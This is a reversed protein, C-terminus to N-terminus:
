RKYIQAAIFIVIAELVKKTELSDVVHLHVFRTLACIFIMVWVKKQRGFYVVTIPGFLDVGTTEFPLKSSDIREEPLPGMTPEKPKAKLVTCYNCHLKVLRLEQRIQPIWCKTRIEAVQSEFTIHNYKEHYFMLLTRTIANRRPLLPVFKQPNCDLFSRANIRILGQPDMFANLQLFEKNTVPKGDLMQKYEVPFSEIQAKRFMFHEAREYDSPNLHEFGEYINKLERWLSKNNFQKNKVLPIFVDMFLKLKRAVARRYKIFRAKTSASLNDIRDNFIKSDAVPLEHTSYILKTLYINNALVIEDVMLKQPLQPWSEFSSKLFEPGVFWVSNSDAFDIKKFKTCLDAPNSATPVYKWERRKTLDLIEEVPGVAYELLRAEPNLIWRLAVESDSWYFREFELDMFYKSIKDGMRAALLAAMLELRPMAKIESQTHMRLPTVKAKAMILRTHVTGQHHISWYAVCGFAEVGADCFVHLQLKDAERLSRLHCYKRPIKLKSINEIDKLWIYWENQIEEPVPDDWNVKAKWARQQLIKGRILFHAIFGFVDYIRAITSALDRKTPHHKFETVLKVFINNNLSYIFCDETTNWNCGLVKTTYDEAENALIPFLDKKVNTTPLLKLFEVSNSQFAILNWNIHKFIEICQTAIQVARDVTPESAILDDMYVLDQIVKSAEPYQSSWNEANWNKVYQSTYPSSSPGFAMANLILTRM